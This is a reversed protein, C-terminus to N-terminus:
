AEGFVIDQIMAAAVAMVQTLESVLDTESKGGFQMKLMETAAEGVEEILIGLWTFNDHHQSGWKKLQADRELIGLDTVFKVRKAFTEQDIM